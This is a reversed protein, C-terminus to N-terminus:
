LDEGQGDVMKKPEFYTLLKADGVQLYFDIEKEDSSITPEGSASKKPFYFIAGTVSQGDSGRLFAVHSPSIKAKVKKTQLYAANDFAKEGRLQFISMNTSQVLVMYEDPSAAVSKEADAETMTGKLVQRRMSAARITRSSWWFISYPVRAAEAAASKELGGPQGPMVGASTNSSDGVSGRPSGSGSGPISASGSAQTMGDPRWAGQPQLNPKAWPSIQLTDQIDKETWQSFPKTKWPDGGARLVVAVILVAALSLTAKRM